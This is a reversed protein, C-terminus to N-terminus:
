SKGIPSKLTKPIVSFKVNVSTSELFTTYLLM